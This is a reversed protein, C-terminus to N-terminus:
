AKFLMVSINSRLTTCRDNVFFLDLLTNCTSTYHTPMDLNVVFFGFGLMNERFSTDVLLNSNFDGAILVDAYTHTIDEMKATFTDFPISRHPRYVSGVLLKKDPALIEVFLFEVKDDDQSKEVFKCAIGLRVYIAVGGGHKKRDARFVKYGNLSVLSDPTTENFWSESICIVDISSNEFTVRFEDIKNKLSQANIHCVNLGNRQKALIRIMDIMVDRSSSSNCANLVM